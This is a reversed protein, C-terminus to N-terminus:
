GKKVADTAVTAPLAGGFPRFLLLPGSKAGRRHLARAAFDGGFQLFSIAVALVAVTIWMLGTEFRQYGYRIAIDGLGGAGVTGAMASYGILAIVTTTAGSILSPLAEPVLVSRVTKWTSGGMSQVAEVLGDDVERVSMEVLRAYFPIAGIALPVIAAERGITT